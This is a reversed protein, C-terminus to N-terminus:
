VDAIAPTADSKKKLGGNVSIREELPIKLVDTGDSGTENEGGLSSPRSTRGRVLLRVGLGCLLFLTCAVLLALAIILLAGVAKPDSKRPAGSVLMSAITCHAACYLVNFLRGLMRFAVSARVLRPMGLGTYMLECAYSGFIFLQCFLFSSFIHLGSSLAMAALNKPGWAMFAKEVGEVNMSWELNSYTHCTVTGECAIGDLKFIAGLYAAICALLFVLYTTSPAATDVLPQLTLRNLLQLQQPKCDSSM